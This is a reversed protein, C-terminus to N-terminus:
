RDSRLGHRGESRGGGHGHHLLRPFPRTWPGQGPRNKRGSFAGQNPEPYLVPSSAVPERHSQVQAAAYGQEAAKRYWKVAEKNDEIVGNGDAYMLGLNFQAAAEGKEADERWEAIQEPTNSWVGTGFALLLIISLLAKM